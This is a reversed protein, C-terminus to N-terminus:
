LYYLIGMLNKVLIYRLIKLKKNTKGIKALNMSAEVDAKTLIGSEVKSECQPCLVSNKADFGCIPLKM